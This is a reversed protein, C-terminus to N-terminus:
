GGSGGNRPTRPFGSAYLKGKCVLAGDAVALEPAIQLERAKTDISLKRCSQAGEAWIEKLRAIVSPSLNPADKGLM